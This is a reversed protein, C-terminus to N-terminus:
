TCHQPKITSCHLAANSLAATHLTYHHPTSHETHLTYHATHLTCHTTHLLATHQTGEERLLLPGTPLHLFDTYQTHKELNGPLVSVICWSLPVCYKGCICITVELM